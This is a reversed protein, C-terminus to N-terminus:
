CSSTSPIVCQDSTQRGPATMRESLVRELDTDLANTMLKTHSRALAFKQRVEWEERGTMGPHQSLLADIAPDERYVQQLQAVSGVHAAM